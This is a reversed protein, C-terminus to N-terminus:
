VADASGMLSKDSLLTIKKSELLAVVLSSLLMFVSPLVLLSFLLPLSLM